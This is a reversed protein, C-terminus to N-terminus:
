PGLTAVLPHAYRIRPRDKGWRFSPDKIEYCTLTDESYYVLPRGVFEDVEGPDCRTLQMDVMDLVSRFISRLRRPDLDSSIGVVSQRNMTVGYEGFWLSFFGVPGQIKVSVHVFNGSVLALRTLDSIHPRAEAPFRYFVLDEPWHLLDISEGDQTTGFDPIVFGPPIALDSRRSDILDALDQDIDHDLLDHRNYRIDGEAISPAPKSESGIVNLITVSEPISQELISAGRGVEGGSEGSLLGGIQLFEDLDVISAVEFYRPGRFLGSKIHGVYVEPRLASFQGGTLQSFQSQTLTTTIEGRFRVVPQPLKSVLLKYRIPDTYAEPEDLFVEVVRRRALKYSSVFNEIASSDRASLHQLVTGEVMRDFRGEYVDISEQLSELAAPAYSNFRKHLDDWVQFLKPAPMGRDITSQRLRNSSAIHVANMEGYTSTYVDTIISHTTLASYFALSSPAYDSGTARFLDLAFSYRSESAEFLDKLLVAADEGASQRVYELQVLIASLEYIHVPAFREDGVLIGETLYDIQGQLDAIIPIVASCVEASTGSFRKLRKTSLNARRASPFKQVRLPAQEKFRRIANVESLYNDRETSDLGYWRPLPIPLANVDDLLAPLIGYCALSCELRTLVVSAATPSLLWDHFHRLEHIAASALALFRPAPLALAQKTVVGLLLQLEARNHVNFEVGFLSTDLSGVDLDQYLDEFSQM